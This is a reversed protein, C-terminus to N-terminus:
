EESESPLLEDLLAETVERILPKLGAQDLGPDRQRTARAADEISYGGIVALTVTTLLTLLEGRVANLEPVVLAISGIVLAVLAVIVRRSRMAMILPDILPRRQNKDENM